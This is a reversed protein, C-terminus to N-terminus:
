DLFDSIDNTNRTVTNTDNIIDVDVFNHKNFMENKVKMEIDYKKKVQNINNLIITSIYRAKGYETSEKNKIFWEINRAMEKITKYIVEYTYHERIKDIEKVLVPPAYPVQMIENLLNICKVKNDKEKIMEEYEQQSCYYENKNNKIVKYAIDNTLERGCIKCKVKRPM